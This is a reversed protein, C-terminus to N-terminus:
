YNGWDWDQQAKGGGEKGGPREGKMGVREKGGGRQKKKQANTRRKRTEEGPIGV